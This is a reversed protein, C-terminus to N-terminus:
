AEGDEGRNGSRAATRRRDRLSRWVAVGCAGLVVPGAMFIAAIGYGLGEWGSAQRGAIMLAVALGLALLALVEPGRRWGAALLLAALMAAGVLFGAAIVLARTM